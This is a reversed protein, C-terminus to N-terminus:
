GMVKYGYSGGQSARSCPHDSSARIAAQGCLGSLVLGSCEGTRVGVAVLAGLGRPIDRGLGRSDCWNGLVNPMEACSHACWAPEWVEGHFYFTFPAVGTTLQQVPAVGTTLQQVPTHKSLISLNPLREGDECIGGFHSQNSNGLVRGLAKSLKADPYQM